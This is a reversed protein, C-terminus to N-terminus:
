LNLKKSKVQKGNHYLVIKQKKISWTLAFFNRKTYPVKDSNYTLFTKRGFFSYTYVLSGDPNKIFSIEGGKPYAKFFVVRSDDRFNIKDPSTWFTVSGERINVQM